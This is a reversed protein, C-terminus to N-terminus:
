NLTMIAPNVVGEGEQGYEKNHWVRLEEGHKWCKALINIVMGYQFGTIGHFSILKELDGACEAVTKGKAIEIQMLKAWDEAYDFCARGYGDANKDKWHQYENENVVDLIADGVKEKFALRLAEDKEEWEKKQKLQREQQASKALEIEALLKNDYAEMYEPGITKWDMLWSTLIDRWVFDQNTDADVFVQVGNFEFNVISNKEKAMIIAKQSIEHITGFMWGMKITEKKM